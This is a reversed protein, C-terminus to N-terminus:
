CLRPDYYIKQKTYIMNRLILVTFKKGIIKFTNDVPCKKLEEPPAIAAETSFPHVTMIKMLFVQLKLKQIQKCFM